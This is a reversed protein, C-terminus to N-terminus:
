LKKLLQTFHLYVKHYTFLNYCGLVKHPEVLTCKRRIEGNEVM